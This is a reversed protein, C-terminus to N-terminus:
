AAELETRGKQVDLLATEYGLRWCIGTMTATGTTPSLKRMASTVHNKVTQESVFAMSAVEKNTYGRCRLVLVEQERGSLTRVAARFAQTEEQRRKVTQPGHLATLRERLEASAMTRKSLTPDGFKRWRAYHM